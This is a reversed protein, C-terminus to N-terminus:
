ESKIRTFVTAITKSILSQLNEESDFQTPLNTLVFTALPKDVMQQTNIFETEFHKISKIMLGSSSKVPNEFATVLNVPTDERINIMIYSPVTKNAFSNEHGTPMTSIFSKLFLTLETEIFRFDESTLSENMGLNELLQSVSVNAYRYLTSSNFGISGLNAAGSQDKKKYDDIASFFDYEPQIQHTSIAHAVQSAAEVNLNNKSAVMRGFLAIDLSPNKEMTKNLLDKINNTQKKTPKKAGIYEQFTKSVLLEALSDAQKPSILFLATNNHDKDFPSNTFILELGKIALSEAEKESLQSNKNEVAKAVLDTLHLTRVGKESDMKFQERMAHKWSQSSIRSRRVGGYFATKPEGVEDRNINSPPVSQLVHVDIYLNNM